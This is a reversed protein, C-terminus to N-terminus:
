KILIFILFSVSTSKLQNTSAAIELSKCNSQLQLIERELNSNRKQCDSLNERAAEHQSNLNDFEQKKTGLSTELTLIKEKLELNVQDSVKKEEKLKM